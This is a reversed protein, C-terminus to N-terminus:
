SLVGIQILTAVSFELMPFERDIDVLSTFSLITGSQTLMITRSKGLIDLTGIIKTAEDNELAEIAEDNVDVEDGSFSKSTVGEDTSNFSVGKTQPMLDSIRKLDFRLSSYEIDLDSSKELEKLFKKAIPTTTSLFLLQDGSSYFIDFEFAKQYNDYQQYEDADSNYVLIEDDITKTYSGIYKIFIKNEITLSTGTTRISGITVNAKKIETTGDPIDFKTTKRVSISTAGM